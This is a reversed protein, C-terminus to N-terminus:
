RALGPSVAVLDLKGHGALAAPRCEAHVGGAVGPHDADLAAAQEVLPMGARDFGNGPGEGIEGSPVGELELAHSDAHRPRVRPDDRRTGAREPRWPGRPRM